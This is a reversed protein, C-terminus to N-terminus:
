TAVAIRMAEPILKANALADKVQAEQERLVDIEEQRINPNVEALAQLRRIETQLMAAVRDAAERVLKATQPEVERKAFQIMKELKPRVQRILEQANRLPVKEALEDIHEPKIIHGLQKGEENVLVRILTQGLFREIQLERPAPCRLVFVAELLMTGPELPPLKISCLCTNGFESDLILEMVGTVMPHEWTLFQIDDRALAVDRAYTLTIGEDPLEPFHATLMHETPHVVVISEEQDENDVGFQDFVPNMFAELDSSEEYTRISSVIEAATEPHCSNLELLPDRGDHMIGILEEAYNNAEALLQNMEAEQHRELNALLPAEFRQYVQLGAAFPRRFSGLGREYWATLVQQASNEYFPVHIAVDRQQGIRDLRGIRQELLDPNLPLDFLVLNGAFQFNRGESGIESCVLVQAGEIPDAFYAGARDREILSMGEHFLATRAGGRLNLHSELDAATDAAACIVLTKEQRHQKLWDLLWTVRPDVNFWDTGLLQEPHLKEELNAAAERELYASPATLPHSYFQREPFGSIAHRTNRFLVRGTGHRDLLSKAAALIVKETEEHQELTEMIQNVAEIGLYDALKGKLTQDGALKAPDNVELLQQILQNLPAYSAEEEKFSTLSRYRAPDLLRLRAFHAEVGLQEPTATLLLLGKSRGALAEVRQYAPSAADPSWELHHAEDVVVLDWSAQLAQEFRKDHQEILGLSCIVSQASEFPNQGDNSTELQECQEEDLLAFRLNFRRLMEIFWQHVLSEPVLILIRRARGTMLQQHLILGAEITKGLGVEDALLVRPAHRQGVENAIYLQHPLLQVRAGLLGRVRAQHWDTWHQLAQRRLKFRSLKELQGALLRDVPSSLHVASQLESEPLNYESGQADVCVYIVFDNLDEIETVRYQNDDSDAITDGVHYQVRSLPANNIAYLREEGTAPFSIQIRRDAVRKIIGLGLEPETNSIWRQGAVFQNQKM